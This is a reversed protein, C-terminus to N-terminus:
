TTASSCTGSAMTATAPPGTVQYRARDPHANKGSITAWHRSRHPKLNSPSFEALCWIVEPEGSETIVEGDDTAYLHEVRAKTAEYDPDETTSSTM